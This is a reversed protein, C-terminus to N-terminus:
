QEEVVFIRPRRAATLLDLTRLRWGFLQRAETDSRNHDAILVRHSFGVYNLVATEVAKILLGPAVVCAGLPTYVAAAHLPGGSIDPVAAAVLDTARPEFWGLLQELVVESATRGSQGPTQDLVVCEARDLLPRLDGLAVAHAADLLACDHAALGEREASVHLKGRADQLPLPGIEVLHAQQEAPRGRNEREADRGVWPQRQPDFAVLWATVEVGDQNGSDILAAARQLLRGTAARTAAGACLSLLLARPRVGSVPLLQQLPATQWPRVPLAALPQNENHAGANLRRTRPAVAIRDGYRRWRELEAIISLRCGITLQLWNELLHPQSQQISQPLCARQLQRASSRTQSTLEMLQERLQHFGAKRNAGSGNLEDIIKEAAGETTFKRTRILYRLRFLIQLERTTYLRRGAHDKRPKLLAVQQEWYRLVHPKVDLAQCVEGILYGSM